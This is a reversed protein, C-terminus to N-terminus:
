PPILSERSLSVFTLFFSPSFYVQSQFRVTKKLGDKSVQGKKQRKILKPHKKMESRKQVDVLYQKWVPMKKFLEVESIGYYPPSKDQGKEKKVAHKYKSFDHTAYAKPYQELRRDETYNDLEPDLFMSVDVDEYAEMPFMKKMKEQNKVNSVHLEKRHYKRLHEELEKDDKFSLICQNCAKLKYHKCLTYHNQLVFKDKYSEGCAVCKFEM